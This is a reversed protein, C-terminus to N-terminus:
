FCKIILGKKGKKIVGLIFLWDLVLSYLNLSIKNSKNVSLFLDFYDIENELYVGNYSMAETPLNTGVIGSNVTNVFAYM